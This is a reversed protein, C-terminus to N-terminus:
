LINMPYGYECAIFGLSFGKWFLLFDQVLYVSRM